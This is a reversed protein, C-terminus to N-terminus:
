RNVHCDQCLESATNTTRLFYVQNGGGIHNTTATSWGNHDYTSDTDHVSHCTACEFKNAGTGYLKYKGGAGSNTQGPIWGNVATPFGNNDTVADLAPNYTFGIPHDNSLDTGLNAWNSYVPNGYNSMTFNAYLASPVSGPGPYNVLGSVQGNHCVLCGLSGISPQGVTASMDFTASSYTIYTATSSSRNWLPAHTASDSSSSHPTHCFACIEGATGGSRLDHPSGSVKAMVVAAGACVMALALLVILTKKM